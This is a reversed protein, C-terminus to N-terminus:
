KGTLFGLVIDNYTLPDEVNAIHATDMITLSAGDIGKRITENAEIPTSPDHRGAIVLTPATIRGLLDRQDMDRVAACAALYGDVPTSVMTKRMRAVIDPHDQHFHPTFWATMVGDAVADIGKDQITRIRDNWRTKDPFHCATNSLILKRFREPANAGLWQGEMGGMSLGCWHATAINLADMMALADRGFREMNLPASGRTSRGHGRKDFRVIRFYRSLADAQPDWMYLDAGLSHSLILTPAEDRGEISVHLRCDDADIMPM